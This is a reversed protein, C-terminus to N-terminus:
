LIISLRLPVPRKRCSQALSVTTRVHSYIRKITDRIAVFTVPHGPPHQSGICHLQQARPCSLRSMCTHMTHLRPSFEVPKPCLGDSPQQSYPLSGDSKTFPQSDISHQLSQLGRLFCGSLQLSSSGYCSNDPLIFFIINMAYIDKQTIVNGLPQLGKKERSASCGM